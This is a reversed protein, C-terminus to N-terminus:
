RRLEWSHYRSGGPPGSPFSLPSGRLQASPVCLSSLAGDGPGPRWGSGRPTSDREWGAGHLFPHKGLVPGAGVEGDGPSWTGQSCGGPPSSIPAPVCPPPSSVQAGPRFGASLRPASTGYTAASRRPAPCAPAAPRQGWNASSPPRGSSRGGPSVGDRRPVPFAHELGFRPSPCSQTHPRAGGWVWHPHRGQARGPASGLPLRETSGRSPVLERPHCVLSCAPEKPCTEGLAM